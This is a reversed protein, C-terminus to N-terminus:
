NPVKKIFKQLYPYHGTYYVFLTMTQVFVVCMLLGYNLVVIKIM